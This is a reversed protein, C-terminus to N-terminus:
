LDFIAELTFYGIRGDPIIITYELQLTKITKKIIKKKNSPSLLHVIWNM